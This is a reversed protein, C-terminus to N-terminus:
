KTMPGSVITAKIGVARVLDNALRAEISFNQEIANVSIKLAALAAPAAADPLPNIINQIEDTYMRLLPLVADM